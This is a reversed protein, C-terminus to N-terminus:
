IEFEQGASTLSWAKLYALRTENDFYVHVTGRNRGGPRLIKFAKRHTTHVEGSPSVTTATEDLLVVADIDDSYTPLPVQSARKLWEPTGAFASSAALVLVVYGLVTRISDSRTMRSGSSYLTRRM